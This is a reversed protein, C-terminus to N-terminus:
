ATKTRGHSGEIRDHTLIALDCGDRAHDVAPQGKIVNRATEDDARRVTGARSQHLRDVGVRTGYPRESRTEFTRQANDACFDSAAIEADSSKCPTCRALVAMRLPRSPPEDFRDEIQHRNKREIKLDSPDVGADPGIQCAAPM